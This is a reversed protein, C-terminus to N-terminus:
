ASPTSSGAPGSATRDFECMRATICVLVRSTWPHPIFASRHLLTSASTARGGSSSTRASLPSQPACHPQNPTMNLNVCLKSPLAVTWLTRHSGGLRQTTAVFGYVPFKLSMYRRSRTRTVIHTCSHTSTNSATESIRAARDCRCSDSHIANPLLLLLSSIMQHIALTEPLHSTLPAAAVASCLGVTTLRPPVSRLVRMM